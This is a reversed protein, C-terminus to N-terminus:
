LLDGNTADNVVVGLRGARSRVIAWAGAREPTARGRNRQVLDYAVFL